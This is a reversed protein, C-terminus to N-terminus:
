ESKTAPASKFLWGCLLSLGAAQLWTIEKLGFIDPMLANWLWMEPFAFILSIAGVMVMGVLFTLIAEYVAQM